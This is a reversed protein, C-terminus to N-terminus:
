AAGGARRLEVVRTESQPPKRDPLVFQLIEVPDKDSVGAIKVCARVTELVADVEAHTLNKLM